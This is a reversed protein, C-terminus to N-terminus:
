YEGAPSEGEPTSFCASVTWVDLRPRDGGRGALTIDVAYEVSKNEFLLRPSNYADNVEEEVVLEWGEDLLGQRLNAMGEELTEVPVESISWPHRMLYLREMDPDAECVSVGPGPESVQGQIGTMDLLRSSLEGAEVRADDVSKVTPTYDLEAPDDTM